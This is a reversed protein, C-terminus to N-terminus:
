WVLKLPLNPTHGPTVQFKIKKCGTENCFSTDSKCNLIAGQYGCTLMNVSENYHNYHDYGDDNGDDCRSIMMVIVIMNM